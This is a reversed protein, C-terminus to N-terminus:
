DLMAAGAFELLREYKEITEVSRGFATSQWFDVMAQRCGARLSTVCADAGHGDVADQYLENVMAELFGASAVISSLMHARHEISFRSRGLHGGQIQRALEAEHQATWLLYSSFYLRHWIGPAPVDARAEVTPPNVTADVREEDNRGTM